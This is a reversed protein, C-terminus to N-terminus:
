LARENAQQSTRVDKRSQRCSMVQLCGVQWTRTRCAALNNYGDLLSCHIHLKVRSPHRVPKTKELYMSCLGQNGPM